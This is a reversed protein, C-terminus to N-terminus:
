LTYSISPPDFNLKKPVESSDSDSYTKIHFNWIKSNIVNHILLFTNVDNNYKIQSEDANLGRM